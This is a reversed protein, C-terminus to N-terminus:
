APSCKRKSTVAPLSSPSATAACASLNAGFPCRAIGSSQAAARMPELVYRRVSRRVYGRLFPALLAYPMRLRVDASVSYRTGGTVPEFRNLFLAVYKPKVEELEIESASRRRLINIVRGATRHDVEITLEDRTRRVLRTGRITAPFLTPWHAFDLYRAVLAEPPADIALSVDAHVTSWTRASRHFSQALRIPM